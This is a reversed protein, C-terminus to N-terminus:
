LRVFMENLLSSQEGTRVRLFVPSGAGVSNVPTITINYEQDSDLDGITVKSDTANTNIVIKGSQVVIITYYLNSRDDNITPEDWDITISNPTSSRDSREPTPITEPVPSSIFQLM